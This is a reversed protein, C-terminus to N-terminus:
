HYADEGADTHTSSAGSVKGIDADVVTMRKIHVKVPRAVLLRDSAETRASTLRQSTGDDFRLM